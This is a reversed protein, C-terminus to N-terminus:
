LDGNQCQSRSGGVLRCAGHQSVEPWVVLLTPVCGWGDVSLSSLTAGLECVGRFMGRSVAKGVLPVLGLEVWWHAPM